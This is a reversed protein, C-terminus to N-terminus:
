MMVFSTGGFTRAVPTPRRLMKRMMPWIKPPESAPPTTACADVVDGAITRGVFDERRDGDDGCQARERECRL